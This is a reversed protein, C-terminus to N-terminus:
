PFKGTKGITIKYFLYWITTRAPYGSGFVQSTARREGLSEHKKGSKELGVVDWTNPDSHGAHFFM